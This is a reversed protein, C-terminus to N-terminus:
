RALRVEFPATTVPPIATRGGGAASMRMTYRGGALRDAPIVFLMVGSESTRERVQSAPVRESWDVRESADLIEFLISDDNKDILSAPPRIALGIRSQGASVDIQSPRQDGRSTVELITLPVPGSWRWADARAGKEAEVERRLNAEQSRLLENESRLRAAERHALPLASMGLWAPYVLILILLGAAVNLWPHLRIQQRSGRGSEKEGVRRERESADALARPLAQRLRLEELCAQCRFYHQEFAEEMESTLTSELYGELLQGQEHDICGPLPVPMNM